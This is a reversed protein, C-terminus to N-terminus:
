ESRKGTEKFGDPFAFWETPTSGSPFRREWCGAEIFSYLNFWDDGCRGLVIDGSPPRESADHREMVLCNELYARMELIVRERDEIDGRAADLERALRENKELLEAKKIRMDKRREMLTAVWGIM